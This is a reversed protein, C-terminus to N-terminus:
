KFYVTEFKNKSYINKFIDSMVIKDSVLYRDAGQFLFVFPNDKILIDTIIEFARERSQDNNILKLYDILNDLRKNQYNFYNTKSTSYFNDRLFEFRNNYDASMIFLHSQLERNNLINLYEAWSYEKIELNLDEAKLENKLYNAIQINTKSDNIVIKLDKLSDKFNIDKSSRLNQSLKTLLPQGNIIDTPVILHKLNLKDIFSNKNMIYRLSEKLNNYNSNQRLNSSYNLAAFYVNNNVIKNMQYDSYKDKQKQYATFDASNLQYLDFNELDKQLNNEAAFSIELQNLYPLEEKQFNNKWYNNNKLLTIQNNSFNGYKFAGTGVPATSFNLDSNIVAEAPMVVAASKALNYIFPAYSEELEIELQYKDKVRIGTIEENKGQRYQDYGKIRNLLEAYPSKNNSAALYEFSWKWDEASVEREKLPVEKGGIKYPHFYINQKLNFHFLTSDNNVEWSEALNAALEGQNNYIVLTDFIQQDILLATDNAAYIPNLNFFRQNVKIKLNGGYNAANVSFVNLILILIIFVYIKTKM